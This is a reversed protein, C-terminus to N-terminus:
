ALHLLASGPYILPLAFVFSLSCCSPARNPPAHARIYTVAGSIMGHLLPARCCPPPQLQWCRCFARQQARPCLCVEVWRKKLKKLLHKLVCTCNCSKNFGTCTIQNLHVPQWERFRANSRSLAGAHVHFAEGWRNIQAKKFAQERNSAEEGGAGGGPLSLGGCVAQGRLGAPPPSKSFKLHYKLLLHLM